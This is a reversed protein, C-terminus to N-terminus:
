DEDSEEEESEDEDDDSDRLFDVLQKTKERAKVLGEGDSSKSDDWWQEIGEAEIVDLEVLKTAVHLLILDGDKRTVADAQLLLMFDVQDPKNDADRDFMTRELLSKHKPLTQNVAEKAPTGNEILQSLRKMFAQTVARRVQHESANTSLRLANLELQINAADDGRQLSDFIGTVADHHFQHASPPITSDDSGVSVFSDTRLRDQQDSYESESNLTSISDTSISLHAM